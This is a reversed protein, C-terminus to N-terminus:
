GNPIIEQAEMALKTFHDYTMYYNGHDGVGPSDGWSNRLTLVGKHGGVEANDDYGIIIMEHGANIQNNRADSAINATLMWTDYPAKYTGLAGNHGRNVDVLTGFTVRHGNALASKVKTLVDDMNARPSFADDVNLLTKYSVPPMIKQSHKTYNEADIPNGRDEEVSIPYTFVNSCGDTKQYQTTILGYKKVQDLVLYGWSGDWGNPYAYSKTKLDYISAKELSSGLELSCLESYTDAGTKHNLEATAADIAGIVAFTVCSGHQGQDLVPVDNMGVFKQTPLSTRNAKLTAKAAPKIDQALFDKAEQSLVIHEFVIPKLTQSEYGPLARSTEVFGPITGDITVTAAFSSHLSGAAFLLAYITSKIYKM